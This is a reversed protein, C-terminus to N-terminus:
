VAIDFFTNRSRQASYSLKRSSSIQTSMHMIDHTVPVHVIDAYLHRQSLNAAHAFIGQRFDQTTSSFRWFRVEHHLAFFFSQSNGGTLCM